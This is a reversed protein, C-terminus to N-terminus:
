AELLNVARGRRRGMLVVGAFLLTMLVVERAGSSVVGFVGGGALSEVLGFLVAGTLALPLSDFGGLVAAALSRMLVFLVALETLSTMPVVLAGALGALAGGVAWVGTAVRRVPIGVMAAGEVDDAIARIQIGLRTRQLVLTLVTVLVVLLAVTVLQHNTVGTGLIRRRGEGFPSPVREFVGRWITGAVGAAMLMGGLSFTTVVVRPWTAMRGMVVSGFVMGAAAGFAACLLLSPIKPWGLVDFQSSSTAAMWWYLYGAFSAIGGHVFAVTRSMRFTLVLAIALVGYLSSVAIGNVLAPKLIHLNLEALV